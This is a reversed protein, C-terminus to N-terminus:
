RRSHGVADLDVGDPSTYAKFKQGHTRDQGLVSRTMAEPRRQHGFSGGAARRQFSAGNVGPTTIAMFGHISGPEVNQRIMVGGKAWTNSTFISNVRAMITGDGNLSKYAFRFQDAHGLYGRRPREDPTAALGRCSRRAHRRPLVSQLNRAGSGTWNQAPDFRSSPRSYYPSAANDYVLPM